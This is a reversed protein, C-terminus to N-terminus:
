TTPARNAKTKSLSSQTKSLAQSAEKCETGVLGNEKNMMVHTKKKEGCLKAQFFKSMKLTAIAAM